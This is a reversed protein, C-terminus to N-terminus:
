HNRCPSPASPLDYVIAPSTPACGPGPTTPAGLAPGTNGETLICVAVPGAPTEIIGAATRSADVSAPDQVCGQDGAPPVPPPKDKDDCAELHKRM